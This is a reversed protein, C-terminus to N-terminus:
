LVRLIGSAVLLLLALVFLGGGIDLCVYAYWTIKRYEHRSKYLVTYKAAVGANYVLFITCGGLMFALLCLVWTAVMLARSTTGAQAFNIVRDSFTVSLALVGAVVTLFQKTLDKIEPYQFELFAKAKDADSVQVEQPSTM